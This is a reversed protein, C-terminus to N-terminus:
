LVIFEYDPVIIETSPEGNLTGKWGTLTYTGDGNDTYEFDVLIESALTVDLEISDSYETKMQRWSVTLLGDSGAVENYTYDEVVATSGDEFTATVVMGTIDITDSEIYQVKDPMTTIAISSCAASSVLNGNRMEVIYRYGTVADRLVIYDQVGKLEEVDAQLEAIDDKIEVDDNKLDDISTNINSFVTNASAVIGDLAEEVNKAGNIKESLGDSILVNEANAGTQIDPLYKEPIKTVTQMKIAVKHATTGQEVVETEMNLAYCVSTDNTLAIVFPEQTFSGLLVDNGVYHAYSTTKWTCDYDKGDWTVICKAGTAISGYHDEISIQTMGNNFVLESDFITTEKSGISDWSVEPLFKEDVKHIVYSDEKISVSHVGTLPQIDDPFTSPDFIVFMDCNITTGDNNQEIINGAIVFPEETLYSEDGYLFAKNGICTINIGGELKTFSTTKYEVGDLTVIYETNPKLTLQSPELLADGNELAINTEKLVDVVAKEEWALRDYFKPDIKHIITQSNNKSLKVHHTGELFVDTELTGDIFKDRDYIGPDCVISLLRYQNYEPIYMYAIAYPEESVLEPNDMALGINGIYVCFTGPTLGLEPDNKDILGSEFVDVAVSEFTKGCYEVIYKQGAEITAPPEEESIVQFVGGKFLVDQDIVTIVSGDITEEWALRDYFKPDIKHIIVIEGDTSISISHTGQLPIDSNPDDKDYENPDLCAFDNVCVKDVGIAEESNVYTIVFPEDTPSFTDELFNLNGIGVFVIGDPAGDADVLLSAVDIATTTYSKSGITVTYEKGVELTFLSPDATYFGENLPVNENFIVVTGSTKEEWALREYYKPDLKHIVEPTGILKQISVTHTHKDNTEDCALFIDTVLEFQGPNGEQESDLVVFFDKPLVGGSSLAQLIEEDIHYNSILYTDGECQSLVTYEHKDIVVLYYADKEFGMRTGSLHILEGNNIQIATYENEPLLTEGFEFGGETWALRNKIYDVAYKDNQAHDAQMVGINKRVQEQQENTLTQENFSVKDALANNVKSKINKILKETAEKGLYKKKEAELTIDESM